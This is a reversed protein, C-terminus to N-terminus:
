YQNALQFNRNKFLYMQFFPQVHEERKRLEPVVFIKGNKL